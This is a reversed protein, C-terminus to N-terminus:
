GRIQKLIPLITPSTELRPDSLMKQQVELPLLEFLVAMHIDEQEATKTFQRLAVGMMEFAEAMGDQLGAAMKEVEPWVAQLHKLRRERDSM